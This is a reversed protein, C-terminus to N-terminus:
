LNDSPLMIIIFWHVMLLEILPGIVSNIEIWWHVLSGFFFSSLVQRISWLLHLETVTALASWRSRCSAWCALDRALSVECIHVFGRFFFVCVSLDRNCVCFELVFSFFQTNLGDKMSVFFRFSFTKEGTMRYLIWNLPRLKGRSFWNQKWNEHGM